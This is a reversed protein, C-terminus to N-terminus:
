SMGMMQIRDVLSRDIDAYEIMRGGHTNTVAEVDDAESFPMLDPGMGGLLDSEVVYLLDTADASIDAATPAPMKKQEIEEPIEWDVRPYDTVDIM